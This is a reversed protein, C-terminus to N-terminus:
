NFINCCLQIIVKVILLKLVSPLTSSKAIHYLLMSRAFVPSQKLGWCWFYHVLPIYSINIFYSLFCKFKLFCSMSNQRIEDWSFGIFLVFPLNYFFLYIYFTQDMQSFFFVIFTSTQRWEVSLHCSCAWPSGSQFVLSSLPQCM